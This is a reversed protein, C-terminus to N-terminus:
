DNAMWSQLMRAAKAPENKVLDQALSLKDQYMLGESSSPSALAPNATGDSNFEPNEAANADAGLRANDRTPLGGQNSVVSKMAPRLVGFILLVVVAGAVLQKAVSFVWPQQWIPPSEVPEIEAPAIFAENIVNVSDGRAANFGVADRVLQTLRDLQAQDIAGAQEAPLNANMDVLVAVSLRDVAGPMTRILSISRDIEYNRTANTRTQNNNDAQQQTNDQVAPDLPPTPSLTGPEVSAGATGTSVTEEQTQESRIVTNNPNFSEETTEIITFDLDASVQAKVNGEGVIPTLINIIRNVYDEEIQRTLRINETSNSFESENKQSLLNGRQDVISVNEPQLGAVSSAVLHLIGQLQSNSVAQMSVVDIMVSASPLSTSRIFSTQKPISLHVRSDRVGQILNITQVLEQELARTYRAQEIFSSTGLSQEEQLIDYGRNSSRPLGNNALLLRIRQVEDEPVTLMGNNANIKYDLNNQELVTVVSASDQPSLDMFLPTYESSTSWLVTASGLAIGAAILLMFGIQRVIHLQSLSSIQELTSHTLATNAM